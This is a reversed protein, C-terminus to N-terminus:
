MAKDRDVVSRYLFFAACHPLLFIIFIFVLHKMVGGKIMKTRCTHCSTMCKKSIACQSTQAGGSTSAVIVEEVTFADMVEVVPTRTPPM